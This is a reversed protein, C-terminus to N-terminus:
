HDVNLHRNAQTPKIGRMYLSGTKRSESDLSPDFGRRQISLFGFTNLAKAMTEEDWAYKHEEKQRFHYNIHELQTQCYKPHVKPAFAWYENSPDGYSRLPWETDPVGVDFVGGPQLIRLAEGLFLPVEYFIEFHEFVHESYIHSACNDPFPWPERLDLQLDAASHFLDINVWGAKPNPGCGLNLKIPYGNIYGNAKKRRGHAPRLSGVGRWYPSGRLSLRLHHPVQFLREPVVSPVEIM